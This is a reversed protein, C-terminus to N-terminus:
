VRGVCFARIEHCNTARILSTVQGVSTINQKYSLQKPFRKPAQGEILVLRLKQQKEQQDAHLGLCRWPTTVETLIESVAYVIDMDSIPSRNRNKLSAISRGAEYVSVKEPAFDTQELIERSLRVRATEDEIDEM